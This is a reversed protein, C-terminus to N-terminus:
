NSFVLCWLGMVFDTFCVMPSWREKSKDGRAAKQLGAQLCLLSSTLLLNRILLVIHICILNGAWPTPSQLHLPSGSQEQLLGTLSPNDLAAPRLDTIQFAEELATAGAGEQDWCLWLSMEWQHLSGCPWGWASMTWATVLEWVSWRRCFHKLAAPFRTKFGARHSGVAKSALLHLPKWGKRWFNVM